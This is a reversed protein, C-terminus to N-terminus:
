TSFGITQGTDLDLLEITVKWRTATGVKAAARHAGALTKYHVVKDATGSLVLRRTSPRVPNELYGWRGGRLRVKIVYRGITNHSPM